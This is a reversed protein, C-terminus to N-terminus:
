FKYKITGIIMRKQLPYTTSSYFLPTLSTLRVTEKNLINNCQVMFSFKKKKTNIELVSNLLYIFDDSNEFELANFDTAFSVNKIPTLRLKAFYRKYMFNNKQKDWTNSVNYYYFALSLNAKRNLLSTGSTVHFESMQTENDSTYDNVVLPNNVVNLSYSLKISSKIIRFYKGLQYISVFETSAGGQVQQNYERNLPYTINSVLINDAAIYIWKANVTINTKKYESVEFSATAIDQRTPEFPSTKFSLVSRYNTLLPIESLQYPEIFSYDITYLAKAKIKLLDAFRKEFVSSVTPEFFIKSDKKDNHTIFANRIRGGASFRFAKIKTELVMEGNLNDILYSMEPSYGEQEFNPSLLAINTNTRAWGVSFKGFFHNFVRGNLESSIGLNSYEQSARQLNNQNQQGQEIFDFLYNEKLNEIGMEAESTLVWNDNFKRIHSLTGFLETNDTTSYSHIDDLSDAYNQTNLENKKKKFQIRAIIDQYESLKHEVKIDQFLNLETQGQMQQETLSMAENESFLYSLFSSYNYDQNNSFISTISKVSTKGSPKYILSNSFFHGQNFTFFEEKFFMPPNLQDDLFPTSLIFGKYKLQSSAFTELDYAEVDIGTNSSEAHAYLKVKKMYSLLEARALYKDFKEAAGGGAEVSGFLPAKANEKLKINIAVDESQKIGHYLRSGTFHKLIDVEELWEASLNKSLVKYNDETLDDGDLMIKKIEKGQYKIKGSKEDVSVGPLKALIEEANVETGDSFASVAYSVTDGREIIAEKDANVVIEKFETQKSVTLETRLYKTDAAIKLTRAIYGLSSIHITVSDETTSFELRYHGKEDSFAYGLIKQNATKVYVSAVEVVQQKSYIDGELMRKTNNVEQSRAMTFFCSFLAIFIIRM